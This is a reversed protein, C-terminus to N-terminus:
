RRRRWRRPRALPAAARQHAGEAMVGALEPRHRAVKLALELVCHAVALDVLHTFGHLVKVRLGGVHIQAPGDVLRQHHRRGRLRRRCDRRCRDRRWGLMRGPGLRFRAGLLWSSRRRLRSRGFSCRGPRAWSAARWSPQPPRATLLSSSTAISAVLAGKISCRTSSRRRSIQDSAAMETAKAARSRNRPVEVIEQEPGIPEGGADIRRDLHDVGRRLLVEEGLHLERQEASTKM